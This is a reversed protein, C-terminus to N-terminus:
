KQAQKDYFNVANRLQEETPHRKIIKKAILQECSKGFKKRLPSRSLIDSYENNLYDQLNIRVDSEFAKSDVAFELWMNEEYYHGPDIKLAVAAALYDLKTNPNYTFQAKHPKKAKAMIKENKKMFTDFKKGDCLYNSIFKWRHSRARAEPGFHRAVAKRTIKPHYQGEYLSPLLFIFM